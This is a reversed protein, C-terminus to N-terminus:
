VVNPHPSDAFGLRRITTGRSDKISELAKIFVEKTSPDALSNSLNLGAKILNGMIAERYPPLFNLMLFRSVTGSEVPHDRRSLRELKSNFSREFQDGLEFFIETVKDPLTKAEEVRMLLYVRLAPELPVRNNKIINCVTQQINQNM